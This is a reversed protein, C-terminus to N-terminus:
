GRRTQYREEFREVDQPRFRLLRGVRIARLRQARVHEYVRPLKVQLYHAVQEPTWLQHQGDGQVRLSRAEDDLHDTM